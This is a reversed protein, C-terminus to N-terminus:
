FLGFVLLLFFFFRRFGTFARITSVFKLWLEKPSMLSGLFIYLGEDSKNKTGKTEFLSKAGLVM